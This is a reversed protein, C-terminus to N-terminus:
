ELFYYDLLVARRESREKEFFEPSKAGTAVFLRHGPGGGKEFALGHNRKSTMIPGPGFTKFSPLPVAYTATLAANVLM